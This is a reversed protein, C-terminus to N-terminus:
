DYYVIISILDIEAELIADYFAKTMYHYSKQYIKLFVLIHNNLM